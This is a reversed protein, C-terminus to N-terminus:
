PLPQSFKRNESDYADKELIRTQIDSHFRKELGYVPNLLPQEWRNQQLEKYMWAPHSARSEEIFPSANSFPIATRPMAYKKFDNLNIDDRTLPRSLGRLDSELNVTDKLLNAGWKQLRIQPDEQFPLQLGQGPTNLMYKGVFSSNEVQMQIRFPDDHFRTFAM